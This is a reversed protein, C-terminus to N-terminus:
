QAGEECAKGTVNVGADVESPVNQYDVINVGLTPCIGCGVCSTRRCDHTLQQLQAKQWENWLFRRSAGPSVHEWPFVEDQARDRGAYFDWTLGAEEMAKLWGEYSFCDSWGDFRAGNKWAIYLAKGLRRDGRAFIGEIVSVKADHYQFSINKVKLADKLLFQKRRFTEVDNQGFWQFATYPKPVFGSASVTVRCGGKGTVQKYKWQVKKALDAIALIDEDTEFPLGIMIYLRFRAIGAKIGLDMARFLHEEEIGKNIVARMRSSGAEPAMTLTRMGSQVLSNLLTETVSDARFSAVSMTM